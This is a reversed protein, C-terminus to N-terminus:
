PKRAPMDLAARHGDAMEAPLEVDMGATDVIDEWMVLALNGLALAKGALTKDVVPQVGLVQEGIAQFHRLRCAISVGQAIDLRAAELRHCQAQQECVDM